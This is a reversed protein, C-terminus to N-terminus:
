KARWLGKKRPRLRKKWRHEHSTSTNEEEIDENAHSDAERVPSDRENETQSEEEQSPEDIQTPATDEDVDDADVNELHNEDLNTEQQPSDPIEEPCMRVRSLAVRIPKAFPKSVLRVDVGTEYKNLVRYPGVFPRAFKYATGSKKAPTYVYVRDGKRINPETASADYYSKQSAQAKKIQDQALQWADACRTTIEAKFDNLNVIRRDRPPNLM